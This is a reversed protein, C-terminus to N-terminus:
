NRELIKERLETNASILLEKARRESDIRSQLQQKEKELKTIQHSQKVDTAIYGNLSKSFQYELDVLMEEVQEKDLELLCNLNHSISVRNSDSIVLRARIQSECMISVITTQFKVLIDKKIQLSKDINVKLLYSFTAQRDFYELGDIVVIHGDFIEKNSNVIKNILSPTALTCIALDEKSIVYGLTTSLRLLIETGEFELIKSDSDIIGQSSESMEFRHSKIKYIPNSHRGRTPQKVVEILGDKVIELIVLRVTNINIGTDNGIQTYTRTFLGESNLNELIYDQLESKHSRM